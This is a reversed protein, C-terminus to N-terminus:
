AAIWGDVCAIWTGDDLRHPDIHHMGNANWGSGSPALVPGEGAERERYTSPSLDTVEFARLQLGYAAGCDQTYRYVKDDLVLVRGGPRAIRADGEIIPSCPHEAWPGLLTDSGYLRLTDHRTPATSTFLWWRGAHRFVSSDVFPQGTLLYGVFSWTTPFTTAEYLRIAGDKCSEPVMYHSGMWEFVYPYSLHFPEAIVIQRYKWKRGDKSTALGIEGRSTRANMVEFFMYWETDARIMFPDAVFRATVDSVHAYTLAPNQVRRSPSFDCPPTGQYIGISWRHHPKGPPRRPRRSLASSLRAAIRTVHRSTAQILPGM